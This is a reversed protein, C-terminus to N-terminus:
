PRELKNSTSEENNFNWYFQKDGKGTEGMHKHLTPNTIPLLELYVHLPLFSLFEPGFVNLIWEM